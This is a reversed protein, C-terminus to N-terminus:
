TNSLLNFFQFRFLPHHIFFSFMKNFNSATSTTTRTFNADFLKQELEYEKIMNKLGQIVDENNSGASKKMEEERVFYRIYELIDDNYPTISNQKLFQSLKNCVKLISQEEQRLDNIRKDINILVSQLNSNDIEVYTIYTEYEYSIHMHNVWHCECVQCLELFILLLEICFSYFYILPQIICVPYDKM